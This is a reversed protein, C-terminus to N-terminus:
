EGLANRVGATILNILESDMFEYEDPIDLVFISRGKVEERFHRLLERKHDREMVFISDAWLIDGATLKRNASERLGRSRPEFRESNAFIREGTPSRLQNRSCIFLLHERKAVFSDNFADSSLSPLKDLWSQGESAQTPDREAM